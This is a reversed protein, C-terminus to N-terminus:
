QKPMRGRPIAYMAWSSLRLGNGRFCVRHKEATICCFVSCTKGRQAVVQGIREWTLGSDTSARVTVTHPASANSEFQVEDLTKDMGPHGYDEDDTEFYGDPTGTAFILVTNDDIGAILREEKTVAPTTKVIDFFEVVAAPEIFTDGTVLSSTVAAPEDFEKEWAIASDVMLSVHECQVYSVISWPPPSEPIASKVIATFRLRYTGGKTLYSSIDLADLWTVLTGSGGSQDYLSHWVSDADRLEIIVRATENPSDVVYRRGKVTLTATDALRSLVFSKRITSEYSTGSALISSNRAKTNGSSLAWALDGGQTWAGYNNEVRETLAM